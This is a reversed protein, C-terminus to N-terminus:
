QRFTELSLVLEVWMGRRPASHIPSPPPPLMMRSPAWSRRRGEQSRPQASAVSLELAPSLGAEVGGEAVGWRPCVHLGQPRLTGRDGTPGLLAVGSKACLIHLGRAMVSIGSGWCVLGEKNGLSALWSLECACGNKNAKGPIPTQM